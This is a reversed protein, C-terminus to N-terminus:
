GPAPAAETDWCPFSRPSRSIAATVELGIHGDIHIEGLGSHPDLLAGGPAPEPSDTVLHALAFDDDLDFGGLCKLFHLRRHTSREHANQQRFARGGGDVRRYGDDLFGGSAM